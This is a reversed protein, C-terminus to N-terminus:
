MHSVEQVVPSEGRASCITRCSDVTNTGSAIYYAKMDRDSRDEYCGIYQNGETKGESVYM